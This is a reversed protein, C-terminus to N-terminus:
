SETKTVYLVDTEKKGVPAAGNIKYVGNGADADEGGM